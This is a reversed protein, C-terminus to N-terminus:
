NNLGTWHWSVGVRVPLYKAIKAIDSPECGVIYESRQLATRGAQGVVLDFFPEVGM